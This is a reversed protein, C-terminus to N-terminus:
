RTLLFILVGAAIAFRYYAFINLGHKVFYALLFKIAFYGAIFASFFGIAFLILEQSNPHTAIVKDIEKLGAALIIPASLLFSFRAAAERKLGLFLGTTVTIGSRSTGPVLAAAQALGVLLADKLRIHELDRKQSAFKEAVLFLLGVAVLMFIVLYAGRLASELKSELLLGIIGAPITGLLLFTFLKSDGNKLPSKINKAFATTIRLIDKWFFILVAFFTGLHLAVDFALGFVNTNIGFVDKALILHGSSSIPLFETLGQLVGLFIASIIDM